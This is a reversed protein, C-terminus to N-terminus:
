IIQTNDGISVCDECESSVSDTNWNSISLIVPSIVHDFRV